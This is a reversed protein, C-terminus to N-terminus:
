QLIIKKTEILNNNANYIKVFYIGEGQWTKIVEFQSKDAINSYVEQGLLNNIKITYNSNLDSGFDIIFKEKAPNPYLKFNNLESTLTTSLSNDGNIRAIRNRGIGNYSTFNGAIIIGGNQQLSLSSIYNNAGIGINFTSDISGNINLRVIRNYSLGNFLTFKGAIVIKGDQQIVIASVEDNAGTGVNFTPDISGNPHLRAIRNVATGNYSTFLGGIIVKGDSQLETAKIPGNTGTGSNFSTDHIGPGNPSIRRINGGSFLGTIILKGDTQLKICNVSGNNAVDIGFFIPVNTGNNSLKKLGGSIRGGIYITGDPYPLIANLYITGSMHDFVNGINFSLDQTGDSNLRFIPFSSTTVIGFLVKGDSQLALSQIHNSINLENLCHPYQIGFSFDASGDTNARALKKNMLGNYQGVGGIILKGDPQFISAYIVDSSGTPSNFSFDTTGDDNLREINSTFRNETASPRGIILIKGDAQMCYNIRPHSYSACILQTKIIPQFTTDVSGDNNYRYTNSQRNYYTPPNIWLFNISVLIKGDQQIFSNVPTQNTSVSSVPINPFSIPSVNFSDDIIGNVDYRKIEAITSEGVFLAGAITIKQTLLIIKGDSQVSFDIIRSPSPNLTPLSIDLTGDNNFRRLIMNLWLIPRYMIYIKGDSHFVVKEIGVLNTNSSNFSNDISGNPNLRILSSGPSSMVRIIIKGDNQVKVKNIVSGASMNANFTTDLTGNSNLKAIGNRTIGKYTTFGGVIFVKGDAQIDIDTIASNSGIATDFTTDVTGNQNLRAIYKRM